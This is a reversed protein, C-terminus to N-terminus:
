IIDGLQLNIQNIPSEHTNMIDTTNSESEMINYNIYYTDLNYNQLSM